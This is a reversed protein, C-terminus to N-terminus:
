WLFTDAVSLVLFTFGSQRLLYSSFNSLSSYAYFYLKPIKVFYKSM